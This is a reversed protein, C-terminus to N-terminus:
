GVLRKVVRKLTENIIEEDSVITLSEELTEEEEQGEEDDM